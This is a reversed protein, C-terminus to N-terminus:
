LGASAKGSLLRYWEIRKGETPYHYGEYSGFFKSQVTYHLIHLLELHSRIYYEFRGSTLFIPSYGTKEFEEYDREFQVKVWGDQIADSKYTADYKGNNHACCNRLRRANDVDGCTIPLRLLMGKSGIRAERVREFLWRLRKKYRDAANGVHGLQQLRELMRRLFAEFIAVLSVLSQRSHVFEFADEVAIVLEQRDYYRLWEHTMQFSGEPIREMIRDRNATEHAAQVYRHLGWLGQMSDDATTFMELIQMDPAM